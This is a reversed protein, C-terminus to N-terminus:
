EDQIELRDDVSQGDAPRVIRLWDLWDDLRRHPELARLEEGVEVEIPRPKRRGFMRGRRSAKGM